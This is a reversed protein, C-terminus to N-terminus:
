ATFDPLVIKRKEPDPQQRFFTLIHGIMGVLECGALREIEEAIKKKQEKEKFDICKVKILEHYELAEHIAKIVNPTLNRQGVFVVPKMGHAIGRLHKKLSGKLKKVM